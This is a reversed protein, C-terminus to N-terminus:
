AQHFEDKEPEPAQYSSQESAAGTIKRYIYALALSFSPVLAFVAIIMIVSFINELMPAATFRSLVAFVTSFSMPVVVGLFMFGVLRWFNGKTAYFSKKVAQYADLRQDVIFYGYLVSRVMFLLGPIILAILGLMTGIVILISAFFMTWMHAFGSFLDGVRAPKGDIVNLNIRLLGAYLGSTILTLILRVVVLLVFVGILSMKPMAIGMMMTQATPQAVGATPAVADSVEFWQIDFKDLLFLPLSIVLQIIAYLGYVAIFLGINDFFKKVGVRLAQTPKFTAM